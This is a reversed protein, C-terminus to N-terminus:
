VTDHLTIYDTNILFNFINSTTITIHYHYTHFSVNQWIVQQRIKKHVLQTFLTQFKTNWGCLITERNRETHFFQSTTATECQWWHSKSTHLSEDLFTHLASKLKFYIFIIVICRNISIALHGRSMTGGYNRLNIWAKQFNCGLFSSSEGTLRVLYKLLASCIRNIAFFKIFFFFFFSAETNHFIEMNEMQKKKIHLQSKKKEIRKYSAHM